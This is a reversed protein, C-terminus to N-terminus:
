IIWIRKSKLASQFDGAATKEQEVFQVVKKRSEPIHNTEHEQRRQEFPSKNNFVFHLDPYRPVGPLVSTMRELRSIHDYYDTSKPDWKQACDRESSQLMKTKQTKKAEKNQGLLPLPLHM